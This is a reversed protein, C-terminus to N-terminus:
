HYSASTLIFLFAYYSYAIGADATLLKHHHSVLNITELLAMEQIERRPDLLSLSIWLYFLANINAQNHEKSSDKAIHSILSRVLKM